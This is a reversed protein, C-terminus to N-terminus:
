FIYCDRRQVLVCKHRMGKVLKAFDIQNQKTIVARGRSRLYQELSGKAMFETVLYIPHSDLSVGILQVLNPHSLTSHSIFCPYNIFIALMPIHVCPAITVSQAPSPIAISFLCYKSTLVFYYFIIALLTCVCM